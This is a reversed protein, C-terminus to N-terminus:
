CPRRLGVPVMARRPRRGLEVRLSRLNGNKIVRKRFTNIAHGRLVFDNPLRKDSRGVIRWTQWPAIRWDFMESARRARGAVCISAPPNAGLFPRSEVVIRQRCPLPWESDIETPNYKAAHPVLANALRPWCEM